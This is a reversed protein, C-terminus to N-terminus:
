VVGFALGECYRPNKTKYGGWVNVKELIIEAM